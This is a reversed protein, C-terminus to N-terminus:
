VDGRVTFFLRCCAFQNRCPPANAVGAAHAPRARMRPAGLTRLHHLLAHSSAGAGRECTLWYPAPALERAECRQGEKSKRTASTPRDVHARGPYSVDFVRIMQARVAILPIRIATAAPVHYAVRNYGAYFHIGDM